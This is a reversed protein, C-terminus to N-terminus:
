PASAGPAASPATGSQDARKGTSPLSHDNAQGPMPMQTSEQAPSLTSDGASGRAATGANALAAKADPV